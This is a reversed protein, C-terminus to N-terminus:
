DVQDVIATFMSRFFPPQYDRPNYRLITVFAIDGSSGEEKGNDMRRDRYVLEIVIEKQGM